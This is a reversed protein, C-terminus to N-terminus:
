TLRVQTDPGGQSSSPLTLLFPRRVCFWQDTRIQICSITLALQSHFLLIPCMHIELLKSQSSNEFMCIAIYKNLSTSSQFGFLQAMSEKREEKYNGLFFIIFFGSLRTLTLGELSESNNMTGNPLCVSTLM